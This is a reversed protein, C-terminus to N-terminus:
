MHTCQVCAFGRGYACTCMHVSRGTPLSLCPVGEVQWRQQAWLGPDSAHWLSQRDLSWHASNGFPVAELSGRQIDGTPALTILFHPQCIPIDQTKNTDWVSERERGPSSRTLTRTSSRTDANQHFAQVCGAPSFSSAPPAQGVM